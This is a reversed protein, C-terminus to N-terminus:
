QDDSAGQTRHEINEAVAYLFRGTLTGDPMRPADINEALWRLMTPMHWKLPEVLPQEERLAKIVAAALPTDFAISGDRKTGLGLSCMYSGSSFMWSGWVKAEGLLLERDHASLSDITLEIDNATPESM